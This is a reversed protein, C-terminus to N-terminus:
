ITVGLAAIAGGIVVPAFAIYGIYGMNNGIVKKVDNGFAVVAGCAVAAAAGIYAANAMFVDIVDKKIKLIPSQEDDPVLAFVDPAILSSCAVGITISIKLWECTQKDM